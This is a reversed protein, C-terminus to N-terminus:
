SGSREFCVRAITGGVHGPELSVEAGSADALQKVVALGLGTGEHTASGRWFRDFARATDESAIGPGTDAVTIEGQTDTVSLAIDLSGGHPMVSLANDIYNDVIQEIATPVAWVWVPSAVLDLSLAVGSEDALSEWHRVRERLTEAIDQEVRQANDVSARGLALLGEILRRMRVLEADIEEFKEAARDNLEVSDRLRELRLQLATLPTRLQHSADAAFSRQEAVLAELRSAMVNFSQSLDRLERPGNAGIVRTSLDGHSLGQAAESLQLINRSLVRSLVIALLIAFMLTILAILYVGWLSRTVAQDIAQEEFTLRVAGVISNGSYIPVAVYVLQLQLTESYRTGTVVRGTLAESIEPRTSYDLGERSDDPDNTVTATGEFDVIVVRAGGEARYAVALDRVTSLQDPNADELADEARGGLIFADRQLQTLLRDREVQYLYFGFPIDSLLLAVVSVGLLALLFLRRM